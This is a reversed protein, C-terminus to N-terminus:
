VGREKVYEAHIVGPQGERVLAAVVRQGISRHSTGFYGPVQQRLGHPRGLIPSLVPNEYTRRLIHPLLAAKRAKVLVPALRESKLATTGETM